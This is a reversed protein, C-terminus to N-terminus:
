RFRSRGRRRPGTRNWRNGLECGRGALRENNPEVSALGQNLPRNLCGITTDVERRRSPSRESVVEESVPPGPSLPFPLKHLAASLRVGGLRLAFAEGIREILLQCAYQLSAGFCNLLPQGIELQLAREEHFACSPPGHFLLELRQAALILCSGSLFPRVLQNRDELTM